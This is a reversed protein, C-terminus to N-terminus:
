GLKKILGSLQQELRNLREKEQAASLIERQQDESLVDFLSLLSAHRQNLSDEPSAVQSRYMSGQNTLLWNIDISSQECIKTLAEAAPARNDALYQQLTRYPIGTSVSFETVNLGSTDIAQRLRKGISM